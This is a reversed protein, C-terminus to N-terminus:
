SRQAVNERKWALYITLLSREQLDKGGAYVRLTKEIDKGPLGDNNYTESYRALQM